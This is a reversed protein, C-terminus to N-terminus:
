ASVMFGDRVIDSYANYLESLNKKESNETNAWTMILKQVYDLFAKDTKDYKLIVSKSKEFLNFFEVGKNMPKSDVFNPLKDLLDEAVPIKYLEM